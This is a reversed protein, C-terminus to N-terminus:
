YGKERSSFGGKERSSRRDHSSSDKEKVNKTAQRIALAYESLHASYQRISDDFKKLEQQMQLLRQQEREMAVVQEPTVQSRPRVNVRRTFQTALAQTKESTEGVSRELAAMKEQLDKFRATHNDGRHGHTRSDAHLNTTSQNHDRDRPIGGRSGKGRLSPEPQPRPLNTTSQNHGREIRPIDRTSSRRGFTSQVDATDTAYGQMRDIAISAKKLSSATNHLEDAEMIHSSPRQPSMSSTGTAIHIRERGGPVERTYTQEFYEDPPRSSPSQENDRTDASFSVRRRRGDRDSSTNNHHSTSSRRHSSEPKMSSRPSRSGVNGPAVGESDRHTDSRLSSRSSKRGPSKLSNIRNM